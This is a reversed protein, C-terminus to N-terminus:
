IAKRQKKGKVLVTVDAGESQVGTQVGKGLLDLAPRVTAPEVEAHLYTRRFMEPSHGLWAAVTVDDAGGEHYMRTGFAHRLDHSRWAKAGVEELAARWYKGWTRRTMPAGNRGSHMFTGETSLGFSERHADLAAVLTATIPVVRGREDETRDHKVSKRGRTAKGDDARVRESWQGDIVLSPGFASVHSEDLGIAEGLRLGAGYMLDVGIRYVEPLAERAAMIVDHPMATTIPATPVQVREILRAPNARMKGGIALSDRLAMDLASAVNGMTQKVTRPKLGRAEFSAQLAELHSPLVEHTALKRLREPVRNLNSKYQVYTGFSRKSREVHALYNDIAEGFTGPKARDNEGRAWTQELDLAKANVESKTNGNVYRASGDPGYVRMQLKAGKGTRGHYPNPRIPGRGERTPM